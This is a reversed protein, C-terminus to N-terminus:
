PPSDLLRLIQEPAVVPLFEPAEVKGGVVIAAQGVQGVAPYRGSVGWAKTRNSM